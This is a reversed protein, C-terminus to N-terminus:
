TRRMEKQIMKFTYFLLTQSCFPRGPNSGKRGRHESLSQPVGLRRDLLYQPPPTWERRSLMASAHRQGGMGDLASTLFSYSIYNREGKFGDLCYRSLKLSRKHEGQIRTIMSIIYTASTLSKVGNSTRFPTPNKIEELPMIFFVSGIESVYHNSFNPRRV